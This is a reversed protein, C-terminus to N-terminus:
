WKQASIAMFITVKEGHLVFIYLILLSQVAINEM